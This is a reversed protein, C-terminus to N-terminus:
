AGVMWFFQKYKSWHFSKLFLSFHNKNWRLVEKRKWAILMKRKLKQDLSLFAQNSLNVQFSIVDCGPYCVTVICMNGLTECVLSFWRIFVPWNIPYLLLSINKRLFWTSFLAPLSTGTKYSTLALQWCM